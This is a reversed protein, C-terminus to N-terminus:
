QSGDGCREFYRGDWGDKTCLIKADASSVDIPVGPEFTYGKSLGISEGVAWPRGATMVVLVTAPAAKPAQNDGGLVKADEPM